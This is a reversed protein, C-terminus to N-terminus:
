CELIEVVSCAQATNSFEIVKPAASGAAFASGDPDDRQLTVSWTFRYGSASAEVVHVQAATVSYFFSRSQCTATGDGATVYNVVKLDGSVGDANIAATDFLFTAGETVAGVASLDFNVSLLHLCDGTGTGHTAGLPLTGDDFALTIDLKGNAIPPAKLCEGTGGDADCTFWADVVTPQLSTGDFALNAELASSTSCEFGGSTGNPCGERICGAAFMASAAVGAALALRGPLRHVM